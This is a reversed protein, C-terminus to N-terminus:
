LEGREIRRKEFFQNQKHLHAAAEEDSVPEYTVRYLKVEGWQKEKEDNTSDEDDPWSATLPKTLHASQEWIDGTFYTRAWMLTPENPKM